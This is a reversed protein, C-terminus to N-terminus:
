ANELVPELHDLAATAHGIDEPPLNEGATDANVLEYLNRAEQRTLSDDSEISAMAELIWSPVAEGTELVDDARRTLRHHLVWQQERTLDLDIPETERPSTGMTTVPGIGDTWSRCYPRLSYLCQPKNVILVM